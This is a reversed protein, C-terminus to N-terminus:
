IIKTGVAPMIYVLIVTYHSAAGGIVFCHWVTHFFPRYDHVYFYVGSLYVLLGFILWFGGIFPIQELMPLVGLFGIGTVLFYSGISEWESRGFFFVKYLVGLISLVWVAVLVAFGSADTAFPMIFPTMSGGIMLYITCHDFVRFCHKYPQLQFGHYLTSSVFLLVMCVSYIITSVILSQTKTELACAILVGGGALSLGLAIAHTISNSIEEYLGRLDAPKM